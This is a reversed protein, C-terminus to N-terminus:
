VNEQCQFESSLCILPNCAAVSLQLRQYFLHKATATENEAAGRCGFTKSLVKMKTKKTKASSNGVMSECTKKKKKAEKKTSLGPNFIILRTESM